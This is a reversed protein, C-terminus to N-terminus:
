MFKLLWVCLLNTVFITSVLMLPIATAVCLRKDPFNELDLVVYLTFSFLFLSMLVAMVPLVGSLFFRVKMSHDPLFAYFVIFCFYFGISSWLVELLLYLEGVFLFKVLLLMYISYIFFVIVAMKKRKSFLGVSLFLIYELFLLARIGESAIIENM